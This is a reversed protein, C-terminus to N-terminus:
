RHRYQEVFAVLHGYRRQLIWKRCANFARRLTRIALVIWRLPARKCCWAIANLWKATLPYGCEAVGHSAERAYRYEGRALARFAQAIGIRRYDHHPPHRLFDRMHPPVKEDAAIKQLMTNWWIAYRSSMPPVTGSTSADHSMLVAGLGPVAVVPLKAAAYYVYGGDAQPGVNIDILGIEDRVETRFLIATWTAPIHAEIMGPIAEGPAYLKAEPIQIPRTMINLQTDVVLTPMCAMMAQPYLQFAKMTEEYFQPALLDDDSLLSFFPTQVHRIGYNFNPYSGINEPHRYYRIRADKKMMDMVVNETDDGSANDYVCVLVHPYTQNLVSLVARRLLQPRRYTPIVTTIVESSPPM